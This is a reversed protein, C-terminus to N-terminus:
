VMYSNLMDVAEAVFDRDFHMDGSYGTIMLDNIKRIIDSEEGTDCHESALKHQVVSSAAHETERFERCVEAHMQQQLLDAENEQVNEKARSLIDGKQAINQSGYKQKLREKTMKQQNYYYADRQAQTTRQVPKQQVSRHKKEASGGSEQGANEKVIKVIKYVVVIWFLLSIYSGMYGRM